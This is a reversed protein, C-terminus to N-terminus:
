PIALARILAMVDEGLGRFLLKNVLVFAPITVGAIFLGLAIRLPFGVIFVNIQPVTRAVIGMAVEAIFLVAIVPAALRLGIVFLDSALRDYLHFVPGRLAAEGLPLMEYSRFLAGIVMHHGDVLLFLIMALLFLFNGLLSASEGTTPEIINVIAFGVQIDVLQGALQVAIFLLLVVGGILLGVMTEKAVLSVFYLAGKDALTPDLPILPLLILSLMFTLALRALVPIQNAGFFPAITFIGAMRVLILLFKQLEWQTLDLISM